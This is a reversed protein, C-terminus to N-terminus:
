VAVPSTARCQPLAFATWVSFYAFLYLALAAGRQPAGRSAAVFYRILPLSSPLMMAATMTQWAGLLLLASAWLPRGDDLFSRSKLFEHPHFRSLRDL